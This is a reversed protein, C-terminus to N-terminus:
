RDITEYESASREIQSLPLFLEITAGGTRKNTFAAMFEDGYLLRFRRLVNVIGIHIDPIQTGDLQNLETLQEESFGPGNDSVSLNAIARSGLDLITATVTVKLIEHEKVAYQVCNEVFTLLSVTPVPIERLSPPIKSNWQVPEAQGISCLELYNQCLDLEKQLSVTETQYSFVYRLHTSFLLILKQIDPIRGIEAFAYLNKLCNLFFHPRIQLKLSIMESKQAALQKEYSEIKLATIQEIMTNFTDNVQKFELNQYGISPRATLEGQSIQKMTVVLADLPRFLTHRIYTWLMILVLISLLICFALTTGFFSGSLLNSRYPQIFRIGIDSATDSFVFFHEGKSHYKGYNQQIQRIQSEDVAPYPLLTQGSSDLFNVTGPAAFSAYAYDQLLNLDVICILYAYQYRVIRLWYVHNEIECNFWSETNVPGTHLLNSLEAQICDRTKARQELNSGAVTNYRSFEQQNPLSYLLIGTLIDNGNVISPFSKWIDYADQYSRLPTTEEGLRRFAESHLVMDVMYAEASEMQLEVNSSFLNLSALSAQAFQNQSTKITTYAYVTLVTALATSVISFILFIHKKISFDQNKEM